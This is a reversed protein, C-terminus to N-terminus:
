ALERLQFTVSVGMRKAVFNAYSVQVGDAQYKSFFDVLTMNPAYSQLKGSAALLIFQKLATMGATWSPWKAFGRADVGTAGLTRALPGYKINGPNNNRHNLDDPGGEFDAIAHAMKDLLTTKDTKPQQPVPTTEPSSPAESPLPAEPPPIPRSEPKLVYAYELLRLCIDKLKQLIEVLKDQDMFHLERNSYAENM